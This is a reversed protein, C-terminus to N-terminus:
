KEKRDILYFIVAPICCFGIVIIFGFIEAVM